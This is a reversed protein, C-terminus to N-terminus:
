DVEKQVPKIYAQRRGTVDAQRATTLRIKGWKCSKKVNRSKTQEM